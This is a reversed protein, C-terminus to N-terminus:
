IGVVYIYTKPKTYTIENSPSRLKLPFTSTLYISIKNLYATKENITKFLQITQLYMKHLPYTFTYTDQRNSRIFEFTFTITDDESINNYDSTTFSLNTLITLNNTMYQGNSSINSIDAIKKKENAPLTTNIISTTSFWNQVNTYIKNWNKTTVDSRGIFVRLDNKFNLVGNDTTYIIYDSM